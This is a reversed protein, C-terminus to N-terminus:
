SPIQLQTVAGLHGTESTVLDGPASQVDRADAENEVEAAKEEAIQALRGSNKSRAKQALRLYRAHLEDLEPESMEDMAVYATEATEIARILEDLKLQIIKGDRNQANQVLFVMLFTVITTGTNIVLQWVDSFHFIPGTLAWVVVVGIALGFAPPSGALAATQQALSTFWGKKNVDPM